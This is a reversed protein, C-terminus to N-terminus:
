LWVWGDPSDTLGLDGQVVLYFVVIVCTGAETLTQVYTEFESYHENCGPFHTATSSYGSNGHGLTCLTTTHSVPSTEANVRKINTIKWPSQIQELLRWEERSWLPRQTSVGSKTAIVCLCMGESIHVQWKLRMHLTSFARASPCVSLCILLRISLFIRQM